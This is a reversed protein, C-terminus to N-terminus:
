SKIEESAFRSFRVFPAGSLVAAGWGGRVRLDGLSPGWATVNAHSEARGTSGTGPLLGLCVPRQERKERCSGQGGVRDQGM